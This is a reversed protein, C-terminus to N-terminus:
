ANNEYCTTLMQPFAGLGWSHELAGGRFWTPPSEDRELSRLKGVGLFGATAWANCNV